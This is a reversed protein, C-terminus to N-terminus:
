EMLLLVCGHPPIEEEVAGRLTAARGSWVDRVSWAREGGSEGLDTGFEALRREVRIAREGLNFLALAKEGGPLDARWAILDGERLVEASLVATQNVRIVDRNTLLGLTAEDLFTVNAGLM